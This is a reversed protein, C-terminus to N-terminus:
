VGDTPMGLLSTWGVAGEVSSSDLVLVRTLVPNSPGRVPPDLEVMSDLGAATLELGDLKNTAEVPPDIGELSGLGVIEDLELEVSLPSRGSRVSASGIRAEVPPPM